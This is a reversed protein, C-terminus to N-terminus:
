MFDVGGYGMRKRRDLGNDDNDEVEGDRGMRRGM